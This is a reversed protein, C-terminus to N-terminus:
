SDKKKKQSLVMSGGNTVRKDSTHPLPRWQGLGEKGPCESLELTTAPVILAGGLHVPHKPGKQTGTGGGTHEARFAQVQSERRVEAKPNSDSGWRCAYLSSTGPALIARLWHSNLAATHFGAKRGEDDHIRLCLKCGFNGAPNPHFHGKWTTKKLDSLGVNKRCQPGYFVLSRQGNPKELCCYLLPNDNLRRCQYTSEKSSLWWPFGGKQSWAGFGMKARHRGKGHGSGEYRILKKYSGKSLFRVRSNEDRTQNQPVPKFCLYNSKNGAKLSQCVMWYIISYCGSM